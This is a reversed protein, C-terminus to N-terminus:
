TPSQRTRTAISKPEWKLICRKKGSLPPPLMAAPRRSCCDPSAVQIDLNSRTAAGSGISDGDAKATLTITGSARRDGLDILQGLDGLLLQLNATLTGNVSTLTKGQFDGHLGDGYSVTLGLDRLDPMQWGGGFSTGQLALHLPKLQIDRKAVTDTAVADSIDLSQSVASLGPSFEAGLTLQLQASKVSVGDKVALTHPMSQAVKGLDCHAILDVRGSGVANHNAALENFQGATINAAISINLLKAGDKDAVVSIQQTKGDAVKIVWDAWHDPGASMDVTTAPVTLQFHDFLLM